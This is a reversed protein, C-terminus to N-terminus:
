IAGKINRIYNIFYPDFHLKGAVGWRKYWNHELIIRLRNAKVRSAAWLIPSTFFCKMMNFIAVSTWAAHFAQQIFLATLTLRWKSVVIAARRAHVVQRATLTTTSTLRWNSIVESARRAHVIHAKATAVSWAYVVAKSTRGAAWGVFCVWAIIFWFSLDISSSLGFTFSIIITFVFNGVIALIGMESFRFILRLFGSTAVGFLSLFIFFYYILLSISPDFLSDTISKLFCQM